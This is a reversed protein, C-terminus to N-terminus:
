TTAPKIRWITVTLDYRLCSLLDGATQCADPTVRPIVGRVRGDAAGVLTTRDGEPYFLLHDIPRGRGFDHEVRGTALGVRASRGSEDTLLGGNSVLRWQPGSWRVRGTAPDLVTLGEFGIACLLGDGCGGVGFPSVVPTQWERELGDLRFGAIRQADFVVLREGVIQAAVAGPEGRVGVDRWGTLERGSEAAYVAARGKELLVVRRDDGVFAEAPRKWFLRGTRLERLRLVGDEPSWEAVRGGVLEVIPFGSLSWLVAGTRADLFTAAGADNEDVVLTGGAGLRLRQGTTVQTRWEPCGACLPTAEVRGDARVIYVAETTLLSASLGMGDAKLVEVVGAGRPLVASGALLLLTVVAVAVVVYAVPRTARVRERDVPTVDLDILM